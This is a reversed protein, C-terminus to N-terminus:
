SPGFDGCRSSGLSRRPRSAHRGLVPCVVCASAIATARRGLRAGATSIPLWVVIPFTSIAACTLGLAATANATERACIELSGLPTPEGNTLDLVGVRQGQSLLLAITGGV